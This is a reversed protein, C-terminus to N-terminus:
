SREMETDSTAHTRADHQRDSHQDDRRRTSPPEAQLALVRCWTRTHDVDDVAVRDDDREGVPRGVGDTQEPNVGGLRVM